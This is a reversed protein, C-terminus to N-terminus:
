ADAPEMELRYGYDPVVILLRAAPGLTARLRSLIVRMNHRTGASDEDNLVHGIIDRYSVTAGCREALIELMEWARKQHRQGGVGTYFFSLPEGACTAYQRDLDVILPGTRVIREPRHRNRLKGAEMSAGHREHAVPDHYERVSREMRGGLVVVPERVCRDSCGPMKWSGIDAIM